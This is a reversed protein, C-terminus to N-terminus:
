RKLHDKRVFFNIYGAPTRAPVFAYNQKFEARKEMEPAVDGWLFLTGRKQHFQNDLLIVDPRLRLIYANDHKEHGALGSGTGIPRHAIHTDVIGYMDLIRLESYYGIAGIALTAVSWNGPFQEKMYLGLYTWKEVDHIHRKHDRLDPVFLIGSIAILLLSGYKLRQTRVTAVLVAFLLFIAPLLHAGFRYAAFHDGGVAIIGFFLYLLLSLAIARLGPGLLRKRLLLIAIFIPSLKLILLAAYSFGRWLLPLSFRDVKAYFTNPFLYGFYTYRWLFYPAYIVFFALFMRISRQKIGDLRLGIGAVVLYPLLLIGEPRTMVTLALLAGSVIPGKASNVSFFSWVVAIWLTAFATSEMGSAAWASWLPFLALACSAVAAAFLSGQSARYAFAGALAGGALASAFSLLFLGADPEVGASQLAAPIVVFPFSTYGEVKDGPNYSFEGFASLNKAYRGSIFADDIMGLRGILISTSLLLLPLGILIFSLIVNKRFLFSRSLCKLTDCLNKGGLVPFAFLGAKKYVILM